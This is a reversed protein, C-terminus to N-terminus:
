SRRSSNTARQFVAATSSREVLKVGVRDEICCKVRGEIREILHHMARQGLEFKDVAITTLPPVIYKSMDIDDFGVVSLQEPVRYDLDHAGRIAGAAMEDNVCFVGTVDPRKKLGQVMTQRGGEFTLSESKWLYVRPKTASRARQVQQTFGKIREAISSREPTGAIIALRQHGLHLLHEAAVAGGSANEMSMASVKPSPPDHDVAVIPVNMAAIDRVMKPIITKIFLVGEANRQSIVAPLDRQNRYESRMYAFILHYNM